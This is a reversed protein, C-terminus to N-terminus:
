WILSPAPGSPRAGEEYWGGGRHPTLTLSPVAGGARAWLASESSSGASSRDEAEEHPRVRALPHLLAPRQHRLLGYQSRLDVLNGQALLQRERELAEREPASRLKM